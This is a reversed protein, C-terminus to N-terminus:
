GDLLAEIEAAALQAALQEAHYTVRAGTDVIDDLPWMLSYTQGESDIHLEKIWGGLNEWTSTEIAM